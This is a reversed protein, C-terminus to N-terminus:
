ELVNILRIAFASRSSKIVSKSRIGTTTQLMMLEVETRMTTTIIEVTEYRRIRETKVL